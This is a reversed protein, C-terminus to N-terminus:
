PSRFVRGRQVGDVAAAAAVGRPQRLGVGSETLSVVNGFFEPNEDIVNM